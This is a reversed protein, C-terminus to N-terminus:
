ASEYGVDMATEKARKIKERRWKRLRRRERMGGGIKDQIQQQQQQLQDKPELLPLEHNPEPKTTLLNKLKNQEDPTFGFMNLYEGISGWVAEVWNLTEEMVREPTRSFEEKLGQEKDESRILVIIEELCDESIRYDEIIDRREVGIVSLILATIIGTRDKGSSCHYLIPWNREDSIIRLVKVVAPGAYILILRNLGALGLNNMSNEIFKSKRANSKAIPNCLSLKLRKSSSSWFMGSLKVSSTILPINFRKQTESYKENMKKLKAENQEIQQLALNRNKNSRKLQKKMRHRLLHHKTTKYRQPLSSSHPLIHFSSHHGHLQFLNLSSLTSDLGNQITENTIEPFVDFLDQYVHAYHITPYFKEVLDDNPDSDKENQNRFDIITKIHLHHSFYLLINSAQSLTIASGARSISSSRFILHPNIHIPHSSSSIKRGVSDAIDRFNFLHQSLHFSKFLTRNQTLAKVLIQQKEQKTINSNDEEKEGEEEEKKKESHNNILDNSLIEHKPAHLSVFGSQGLYHCNYYDLQLDSDQDIYHQLVSDSATNKHYYASRNFEHARDEPSQIDCIFGKRIMLNLIYLAEKENLSKHMVLWLLAEEGKFTENWRKFYHFKWSLNLGTKKKFLEDNIKQIYEEDFDKPNKEEFIQNKQDNKEDSRILDTEQIHILEANSEVNIIENLNHNHNHNNTQDEM